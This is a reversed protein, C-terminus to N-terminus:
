CLAVHRRDGVAALSQFIGWGITAGAILRRPGYRDILWGGPVQLLAYTWFFSSLVVGQM